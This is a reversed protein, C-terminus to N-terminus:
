FIDEDDSPQSTVREARTPRDDPEPERVARTEMVERWGMTAPIFECMQHGIPGFRNKAIIMKIQRVSDDEGTNTRHLFIVADADQEISGSGRLDSLRPERPTGKESDRSMQALALVPIRIERAIVKLVRSIESVKEYESMDARSGALLQLYDVIVLEPPTAQRKIMSRLGITTLDSGDFLTMKWARMEKVAEALALQQADDLLGSDIARFDMASVHSMLKRSLDPRDVELSIFLVRRQAQCLKATIVLANTTKGAGPRAALVYLGGRRFGSLKSDLGPFGTMIRDEKGAAREAMEALAEDTAASLDVVESKVGQRSLELVGGSVRDLCTGLDAEGQADEQCKALHDILERKGYLDWVRRCSYELGAFPAFSSGLAGLTGFGGIANLASDPYGTAGEDPVLTPLGSVAKLKALATEFSWRSLREGVVPADVRISEDDLECIALWLIRHDRNYFADPHKIIGRAVAVATRHRGDLITALVAREITDNHPTM